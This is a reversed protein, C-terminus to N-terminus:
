LLGSLEIKFYDAFFAYQAEPPQTGSLYLRPPFPRSSPLRRLDGTDLIELVRKGVGERSDILRVDEGLEAHIENHLYLFHTCALVVTDVGEARFKEVAEAVVLLREEPTAAFFKKEVFNVIDPGPVRIITCSSAFREILGDLYHAHITASTALIGIRKNRSYRAAPKIAPVTGVFIKEPFELRLRELASVSATNCALVFLKPDFAAGCKAVGEAVAAFVEDPTKPGYPFHGRDAFYVFNEDPAHQRVWQLYPLGGVGSDLFAIPAQNDM